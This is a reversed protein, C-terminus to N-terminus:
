VQEIESGDIDPFKVVCNGPPIDVLKARGRKDLTGERVSDDALRVWYAEGPVPRENEDLLLLEIWGKPEPGAPPPPPPPESWTPLEWDGGDINPFRVLCTGPDLDDIRVFGNADLKGEREEANPLRIWYPEDAVPELRDDILELEIWARVKPLGCPTVASDAERDGTGTGSGEAM